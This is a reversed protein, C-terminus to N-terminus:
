KKIYPSVIRSPEARDFESLFSERISKWYGIINKRAAASTEKDLKGWGLEKIEQHICKIPEYPYLGTKGRIEGVNMYVGRLEDIVISLSTLIQGYDKQTPEDEFTFQIAENV